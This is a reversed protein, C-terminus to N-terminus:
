EIQTLAIGIDLPGGVLAVAHEDDGPHVGIGLQRLLAEVIVHGFARQSGDVGDALLGPLLFEVQDAVAKATRQEARGHTVHGGFFVLADGRRGEKDGQQVEGNGAFEADEDVFGM